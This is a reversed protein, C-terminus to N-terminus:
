MAIDFKIEAATDRVLYLRGRLLSPNYFYVYPCELASELLFKSWRWREVQLCHSGSKLINCMEDVKVLIVIGKMFDMEYSDVM